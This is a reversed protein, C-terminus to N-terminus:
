LHRPHNRWTGRLRRPPISDREEASSRWALALLLLAMVLLIVDTM